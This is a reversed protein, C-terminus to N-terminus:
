RKKTPKLSVTDKKGCSNPVGYSRGPRRKGASSRAGSTTCRRFIATRRCWGSICIPSFFRRLRVSSSPTPWNKVAVSRPSLASPPSAKSTSKKKTLLSSPIVSPLYVNSVGEEKYLQNSYAMIEEWIAYGYPLYDIFGKVSSYDMLEAKKCVDTYWQAFDVDRATIASNKNPQNM